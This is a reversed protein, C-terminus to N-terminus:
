SAIVAARGVRRPAPKRRTRACVHTQTLVVSCVVALAVAAWVHGEHSSGEDQGLFAFALSDLSLSLRTRAIMRSRQRKRLWRVDILGCCFPVLSRLGLRRRRRPMLFYAYTLAQCTRPQRSHARAVCLLLLVSGSAIVKLLRGRKKVANKQEKAAAKVAKKAESRKKKLEELQDCLLLAQGDM